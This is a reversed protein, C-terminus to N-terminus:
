RSSHTGEDVTQALLERGVFLSNQGVAVYHSGAPPLHRSQRRGPHLARDRIALVYCPNAAECGAPLSPWAERVSLMVPAILNGSSSVSVIRAGEAAALAKHLGVTLAFHGLFNTAFQMEWGEPTRELEPLAMIGANNVLKRVGLAGFGGNSDGRKRGEVSAKTYDVSGGVVPLITNCVCGTRPRLLVALLRLM